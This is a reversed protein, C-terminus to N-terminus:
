CPWYTITGGYMHLEADDSLHIGGASNFCTSPGLTVNDYIYLKASGQINFISDQDCTSYIKLTESYDAGGLYVEASGAIIISGNTIKVEYGGGLLTFSKSIPSTVTGDVEINKLLTITGGDAVNAIAELFSGEEASGTSTTYTAEADVAIATFPLVGIVICIAILVSFLKRTM